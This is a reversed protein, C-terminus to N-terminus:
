ERSDLYRQLVLRVAARGRHLLVRQNATTIGLVECVEGSDFGVMDRLTVVTRQWEPLRDLEARAVGVLENYLVSGEPTEPFPAPYKTWEKWDGRWQEDATRFLAPDVTGGTFAAIEADADRRERVGRTKAINIMIKFLWTRVSSRGEFKAIGKLLAIWAEQVVEEAIERSHVYGRAVGLMAPTYSEVLQAFVREDGQRLAGILASEDKITGTMPVQHYRSSPVGSHRKSNNDARCPTM